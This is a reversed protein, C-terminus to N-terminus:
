RLSSRFGTFLTMLLLILPFIILLRLIRFLYSKMPPFKLIFKMVEDILGLANIQGAKVGQEPYNVLDLNDNIKKVFLRVAYYDAFIVNGSLSFLSEDFKFKERSFKSIHFEYHINSSQLLKFPAKYISISQNIKNTM